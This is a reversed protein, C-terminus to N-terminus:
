VRAVFRTEIVQWGTRDTWVWSWGPAYPAAYAREDANIVEPSWGAGNWRWAPRPVLRCSDITPATAASCDYSPVVHTWGVRSGWGGWGGRGSGPGASATPATMALLAVTVAAAAIGARAHVAKWTM